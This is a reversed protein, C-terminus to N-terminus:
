GNSMKRIWSQNNISIDFLGYATSNEKGIVKVLAGDVVRDIFESKSASRVGYTFFYTGAVLSMNVKWIVEIMDGPCVIVLSDQPSPHSLGAIELGSISKLHFGFVVDQFTQDFRVVLRIYGTFGSSVINVKDSNEDQLEFSVIKGGQSQYKLPKQVSLGEIYDSFSEMKNQNEPTENIGDIGTKKISEIVEIENGTKSFIM